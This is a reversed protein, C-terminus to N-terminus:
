LWPALPVDEHDVEVQPELGLARTELGADEVAPLGAPQASATERRPPVSAAAPERAGDPVAQYYRNVEFACHAEHLPAPAGSPAASTVKMRLGAQGTALEYVADGNPNLEGGGVFFLSSGPGFLARDPEVHYAVAEGRRSLRLSAVPVGRGTGFVDEFRVRFLGAAKTALHAVM